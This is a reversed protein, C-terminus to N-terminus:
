GLDVGKAADQVSAKTFQRRPFCCVWPLIHHGHHGCAPLVDPPHRRTFLLKSCQTPTLYKLSLLFRSVTSSTLLLIEAISRNKFFLAHFVIAYRFGFVIFVYDGWVLMLGFHEAIIDWTSVIKPEHVFYDWIYWATALQYLLMRSTIFGLVEYHKCLFSLNVILWGAMAPRYSFFKLNVGLFFPNLQAGMVFDDWVSRQKLWNKRRSLRGVAFLYVSFVLSFINAAVFLQAYNDAVWSGSIYGSWHATALATIVVGTVVLGNCKYKLRTGDSLTEGPQVKGPLFVGLLALSIIYLLLAQWITASPRPITLQSVIPLLEPLILALCLLWLAIYGHIWRM